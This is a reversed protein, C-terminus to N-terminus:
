AAKDFLDPPCSVELQRYEDVGLTHGSAIFQLSPNTAQALDALATRYSRILRNIMQEAAPRMRTAKEQVQHRLDNLPRYQKDLATARNALATRTKLLSARQAAIDADMRTRWGHYVKDDKRKRKLLETFEPNTDHLWYALAMGVIWVLLNAILTMLVKETPNIQPANSGGIVLGGGGSLTSMLDIVWMYRNWGVFTLAGSLALSVFGLWILKSAKKSSPVHDGFWYERQKIVTGHEHSAVAVALAVIVTVGAAMAPVGFVDLFAEYNILWEVAGIILLLPAYIWLPTYKAHREGEEQYTREYLVDSTEKAKLADTYKSDAQFKEEIKQEIQDSEFQAEAKQRDLDTLSNLEPLKPHLKTQFDSLAADFEAMKDLIPDICATRMGNTMGGAGLLLPRQSGAEKEAELLLRERYSGSEPNPLEFKSIRDFAAQIEPSISQSPLESAM